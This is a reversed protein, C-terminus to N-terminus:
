MQEHSFPSIFSIYMEIMQFEIERGNELVLKAARIKKDVIESNNKLTLFVQQRMKIEIWAYSEM